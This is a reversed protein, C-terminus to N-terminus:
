LDTRTSFSVFTEILNRIFDTIMRIEFVVALLIVILFIFASLKLYNKLNRRYFKEIKFNPTNIFDNWLYKSTTLAIFVIVIFLIFFIFLSLDDVDVGYEGKSYAVVGYIAMSLTLFLKPIPTKNYASAIENKLDRKSRQYDGGGGKTEETMIEGSEEKESKKRLYFIKNSDEIM